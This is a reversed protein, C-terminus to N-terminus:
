YEGIIQFKVSQFGNTELSVHADYPNSRTYVLSDPSNATISHTSGFPTTFVLHCGNRGYGDNTIYTLSSLSLNSDHLHCTQNTTDIDIQGYYIRLPQECQWGSSTRTLVSHVPCDDPDITGIRGDAAVVVPDVPGFPYRGYVGDIFTRAAGEGIRTTNYETPTGTNNNIYINNNGESLHEGSFDGIAVNHQGDTVNTLTNYGIATNSSGTTANILSQYGIAINNNGTTASTMSRHGIAVNFDGSALNHMSYIGIGINAKADATANGTQPGVMLNGDGTGSYTIARSGNVYLAAGPETMDIGGAVKLKRSQPSGDITVVDANEFIISNGGSTASTFRVLRGSSGAINASGAPGQPGAPGTDGQPGEPGAPGAPGAAGDTGPIGQPGEPGQPGVDGQPGEPGAPGQPGEPGPDGQM